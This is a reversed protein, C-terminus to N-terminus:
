KGEKAGQILSVFIQQTLTLIFHPWMKNKIQAWLLTLLIKGPLAVLAVTFLQLGISYWELGDLLMNSQPLYILFDLSCYINGVGCLFM